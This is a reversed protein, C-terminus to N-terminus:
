DTKCFYFTSVKINEANPLKMKLKSSVNRLIYLFTNESCISSKHNEDKIQYTKNLTISDCM